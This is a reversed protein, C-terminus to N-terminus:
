RRPWAPWRPRPSCLACSTPPRGSGRSGTSSRPTRPTPPTARILHRQAHRVHGTRRRDGLYARGAGDVTGCRQDPGVVVRVPTNRDDALTYPDPGRLVALDGPKLLVPTGGDPTVWAGGRVMTVLSVPARDEVRLSWPPRFVSRLLFSGRAKLGELLGALVDMHRDDGHGDAEYRDGEYRTDTM